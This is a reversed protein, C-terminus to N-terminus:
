LACRPEVRGRAGLGDIVLLAGDLAGEGGVSTVYLRDLDRGGFTVDTPNSSPVPVVRDLGTSTFRALQGGAYLACWLGMRDDLTAGDPAGDLESVDGFVRRPGLRAQEADYEYCYYHAATDGIVLLHVGDLEFATPGNTNAIDPDLLRWGHTISYQWSSGEGPALNLTGTIVNGELDACADNARDGLGEPYASIHDVIRADADVISLGDDMCAVLRGDHTPVLGAPMSEMQMTHLAGEGNELWHLCQTGCDVFYLRERREDWVLSEGWALEFDGVRNIEM